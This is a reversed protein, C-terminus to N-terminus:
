FVSQLHTWTEKKMPASSALDTLSHTFIIKQSGDSKVEGLKLNKFELTSKAQEGFLVIVKAQSILEPQVNTQELNVFDFDTFNLKLAAIMRTQMEILADRNSSYSSVFLYPKVGTSAPAIAFSEVGLVDRVYSLVTKLQDQAM